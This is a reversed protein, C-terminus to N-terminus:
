ERWTIQAIRAVRYGTKEPSFGVSAAGTNNLSSLGILTENRYAAIACHTFRKTVRKRMVVCNEGEHASYQFTGDQNVTGVIEVFRADLTHAMTTDRTRGTHIVLRTFSDSASADLRQM